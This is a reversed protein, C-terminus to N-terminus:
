VGQKVLPARLAEDLTQASESLHARAIDPWGKAALSRKLDVLLREAVLRHVARVDAAASSAPRVLTSALRKLHERQLNRRLSDIALSGKLEGWVADALRTQVEAYNPLSRADAVKSEADALRTAVADSMLADLASRQVALVAAPLSFDPSPPRGFSARELQDFGLRQMFRPEFRFSASSFVEGLLLDLAERQRAPPLPTIVARDAGALQRSVVAGGVHRALLPVQNALSTLGRQLNRRYISLDDDAQLTRQQTRQWLEHALKFERRAHAIPDDGLDRLNTYPDLGNADEDTAYALAPERSSRNAIAALGQAEAATAFERYGYEIAWFDYAGLTPMFIDTATEGPLTINMANYDMVSNSVGRTHTFAPDRLQAATVGTSAKFNHRLGLAHGVEHMVVDKLASRIYRDGEPGNPDFDGRAALLEFGMAAQELSQQAHDCLAAQAAQGTPAAPPLTPETDQARSRFIRVWNEPIIAAGRLLEGTRPDAQSPGVALAGPGEAAFWRVALLRTGETSAWDADKAQQELAIANRFGAGEFALNWELIGARVADRWKDPINRDMVVRIPQRPESVTAVPDKKELRWRHILHTRRGESDDQGLNVYGTTFFGVRQDAVRPRMPQEPLPALTYALSLFLSRADPLTRPPNPLMAPNPPPAGPAMVPPLPLKSVSFHTKIALTTALASTRASEISSNARDLAYPLRFAFELRPQAGYLDGGLLAAADVLLSKRQPHPAAALATSALLSDSYSESVAVALPTGVPARAHLNRAILQLSNGNRHLVVMDSNGMLGPLMRGEGLGSALSSALYFPQDLREAPVELWTKEDKTWVGFYGPALKAGKTVEDFPAPAGPARPTAAPASAPRASAVASGPAASPTSSPSAATTACGSLAALAAAAACALTLSPTHM